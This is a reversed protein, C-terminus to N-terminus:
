CRKQSHRAMLHDYILRSSATNREGLMTILRRLEKEGPGLLFMRSLFARVGFRNLVKAVSNNPINVTLWSIGISVGSTGAKRSGLSTEISKAVADLMRRHKLVAKNDDEDIANQYDKLWERLKKYKDRLQIAVKLLQDTTKCEHIVEVAIAPLSFQAYTRLQNESIYQFLKTRGDQIVSLSSRVADLQYNLIPSQLILHQRLPHGMYPKKFIHSRALMGATGWILASMHNDAAEGRQIWSDENERQVKLISDTVCLDQLIVRRPGLWEEKRHSFLYPHLVNEAKLKQMPSDAADWVHMFENDVILADRLVVNELLGLLAEIQIVSYPLKAFSHQNKDHDIQLEGTSESSPGSVLLSCVDQLSWNDIILRLSM